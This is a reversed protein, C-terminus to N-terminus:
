ATERRLSLGRGARPPPPEGADALALEAIRAAVPAAFRAASAGEPRQRVCLLVQECLAAVLGADDRMELWLRLRKGDHELIRGSISIRADLHLEALYHVLMALTYITQGHEARGQADLGIAAMLEDTARSFRLAYAADNMHGNYDVDGAEVRGQLLFKM